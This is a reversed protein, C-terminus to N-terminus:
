PLTPVPLSHPRRQEQTPAQPPKSPHAPSPLFNISLHRFFQIARSLQDCQSDLPPSLHPSFFDPADKQGPERAQRSFADKTVCRCRGKEGKHGQCKLDSKGCVMGWSTCLLSGRIGAARRPVCGPRAGWGSGGWKRPSEQGQKQRM